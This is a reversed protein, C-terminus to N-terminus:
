PPHRARIEGAQVCSNNSGLQWVKGSSPLSRALRLVIDLLKNHGAQQATEQWGALTKRATLAVKHHKAYTIIACLTLVTVQSQLFLPDYPQCRGSFHRGQSVTICREIM